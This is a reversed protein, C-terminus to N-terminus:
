LPISLVISQKHCLCVLYIIKFQQNYSHFCMLVIGYTKFMCGLMLISREDLYCQVQCKVHNVQTANHTPNIQLQGHMCGRQMEKGCRAPKFCKGQNTLINDTLQKCEEAETITSSSKYKICIPPWRDGDRSDSYKM